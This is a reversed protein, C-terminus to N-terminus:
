NDVFFRVFLRTRELVVYNIDGFACQTFAVLEQVSQALYGNNSAELEFAVVNSLFSRVSEHLLLCM